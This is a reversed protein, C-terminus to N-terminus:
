HERDTKQPEHNRDTSQLLRAKAKLKENRARHLFERREDAHFEDGNPSSQSGHILRPLAKINGFAAAPDPRQDRDNHQRRNVRMQAFFRNPFFYDKEPTRNHKRDDGVDAAYKGNNENGPETIRIEGASKIM